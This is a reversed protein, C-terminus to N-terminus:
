GGYPALSDPLLGVIMVLVLLVPFLIVGWILKREYKLHMYYLGVLAAKTAAMMGLGIVLVHRFELFWIAWAIEAVTFATLWAFVKYYPAAAHDSM